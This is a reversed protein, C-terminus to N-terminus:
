FDSRYIYIEHLGKLPDFLLRLRAPFARIDLAYVLEGADEFIPEGLLQRAADQRDGMKLGLLPDLHRQDFRIQWVRDEFWYLYSYDPYFFVIDRFLAEEAEQIYMSRPPGFEAIAEAPTMGLVRAEPLPLYTQAGLPALVLLFLLGPFLFIGARM